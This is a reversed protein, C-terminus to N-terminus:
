RGAPFRPRGGPPEAEQEILKRILRECEAPTVRVPTSLPELDVDPFGRATLRQILADRTLSAGGAWLEVIVEFFVQHLPVRFHRSALGFPLPDPGDLPPVRQYLARLVQLEIDATRSHNPDSM